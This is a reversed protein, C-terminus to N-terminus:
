RVMLLRAAGRITIRGDGIDDVRASTHGTGFDHEQNKSGDRGVIAISRPEFSTGTRRKNPAGTEM